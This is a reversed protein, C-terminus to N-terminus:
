CRAAEWRTNADHVLLAAVTLPGRVASLRAPDRKESEALLRLFTEAGESNM